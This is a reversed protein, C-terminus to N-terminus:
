SVGSSHLTASSMKQHAQAARAAISTRSRTNYIIAQRSQAGACLLFIRQGLSTLVDSHMARANTRRTAKAVAIKWMVIASMVTPAESKELGRTM